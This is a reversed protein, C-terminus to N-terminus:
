RLEGEIWVLIEELKREHCEDLNFKCKGGYRWIQHLDSFTANRHRHNSNRKDQCPSNIEELDVNASPLMNGGVRLDKLLKRLDHGVKEIDEKEFITRSNRKLWVVKLGCEVAYFLLLRHPNERSGGSPKAVKILSQWARKMERDTFPIAM